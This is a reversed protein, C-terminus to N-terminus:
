NWWGLQRGLTYFAATVATFVTGGFAAKRRMTPPMPLKAEISDLRIEHKGLTIKNEYTQLATFQALKKPPMREILERYNLENIMGKGNAM